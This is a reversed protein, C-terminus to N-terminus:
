RTILNFNPKEKEPNGYSQTCFKEERVTIMVCMIIYRDEGGTKLNGTSLPQSSKKKQREIAIGIVTGLSHYYKIFVLLLFPSLFFTFHIFNVIVVPLSVSFFLCGWGNNTSIYVLAVVISALMSITRGDSVWHAMHGLWWVGPFKGYLFSIMM